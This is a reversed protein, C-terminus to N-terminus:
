SVRYAQCRAVMILDRVSPDLLAEMLGNDIERGALDLVVDYQALVDVAVGVVILNQLDLLLCKLVLLDLGVNCLETKWLISNNATVGPDITLLAM